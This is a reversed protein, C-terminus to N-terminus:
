EDEKKPNGKWKFNAAYSKPKYSRQAPDRVEYDLGQRQCYTIAAQESEFKMMFIQNFATDESSPWGM